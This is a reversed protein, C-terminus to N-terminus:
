GALKDYYLAEKVKNGRMIRNKLGMLLPLSVLVVFMKKVFKRRTM